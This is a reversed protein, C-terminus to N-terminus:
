DESGSKEALRKILEAIPDDDPLEDIGIALQVDFSGCNPCGRRGDYVFIGEKCCARCRFRAM